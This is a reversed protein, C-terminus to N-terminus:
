NRFLEPREELLQLTTKLGTEDENLCLDFVWDHERAPVRVPAPRSLVIETRPRLSRALEEGRARKEEEYQADLSKLLAFDTQKEHDVADLHAAKDLLRQLKFAMKLQRKKFASETM